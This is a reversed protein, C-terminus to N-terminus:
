AFLGYDIIQLSRSFIEFHERAKDLGEQDVSGGDQSKVPVNFTVVIDVPKSELRYLAMFIKVEDSAARNFKPVEQYGSLVIASPTSDGRDNAVLDVAHIESSVASNDHALSDFHFRSPVTLKFESTSCTWSKIADRFNTPDVKELIEVIISVGSDPYLLVEQTDPIQRIDSHHGTLYSIDCFFPRM